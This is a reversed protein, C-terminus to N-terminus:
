DSWNDQDKMPEGDLEDSILRSPSCVLIKRDSWLEMILLPVIGQRPNLWNIVAKCWKWYYIEKTTAAIKCVFKTLSVLVKTNFGALIFWIKEPMKFNMVVQTSNTDWVRVYHDHSGTIFLGTDIPYWIASSVTYKHGQEHQKDVVVISKHKAILGGGKYDTARQLSNISGRHPSVIDGIEKWM